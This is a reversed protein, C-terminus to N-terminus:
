MPEYIQLIPGLHTAHLCPVNLLSLRVPPHAPSPKSLKYGQGAELEKQKMNRNVSITERSGVRVVQEWTKRVM